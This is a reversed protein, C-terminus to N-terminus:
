LFLCGLAAAATQAALLLHFPEVRRARPAAPRTPVGIHRVTRVTTTTTM